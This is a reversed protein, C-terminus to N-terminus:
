GNESDTDTDGGDDSSSDSNDQNSEGGNASYLYDHLRKKTPEWDTEYSGPGSVPVVVLMGSDTRKDTCENINPIDYSNIEDLGMTYASFAVSM